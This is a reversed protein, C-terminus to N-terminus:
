VEQVRQVERRALSLADHMDVLTKLLPRLQEDGVEQQAQGAQEERRELAELAEALQRLTEANQEQQARSAKTQLNVEHRLAIFQALLTHLDVPPSAPEPPPSPVTANELWSRFEGLLADIREPSLRAQEPGVAADGPVAPPAHESM